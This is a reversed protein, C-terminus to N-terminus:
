PYYKNQWYWTVAYETPYYGSLSLEQAIRIVLSILLLGPHTSYLIYNCAIIRNWKCEFIINCSVYRWSRTVHKILHVVKIWTLSHLWLICSLVNNCTTDIPSIVISCIWLILWTRVMITKMFKHTSLNPNQLATVAIIDFIGTFLLVSSIILSSVAYFLKKRHHFTLYYRNRRRM